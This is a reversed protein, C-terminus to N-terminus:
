PVSSRPAPTEVAALGTGSLGELPLVEITEADRSRKTSSCATTKAATPVKAGLKKEAMGVMTRVKTVAFSSALEMAEADWRREDYLM